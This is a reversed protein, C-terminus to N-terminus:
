SLKLKGQMNPHYKCFYNKNIDATVAIEATDNRRLTGTNWSKDRATATHPAGDKNTFVITDGVSVDLSDPKFAFGEIAVQHITAASASRAFPLVLAAGFAFLSKLVFRRNM